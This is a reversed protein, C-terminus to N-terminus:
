LINFSELFRTFNKNLLLPEHIQFLNVDSNSNAELIKIDENNLILDWGIYPLFPVTAHFQEVARLVKDWNPFIIGYLQKRTDPHVDNWIIKGNKPFIVGRSLIGTKIDINCCIGGSSWNDVPMSYFTGFRHLARIVKAQKTNPDFISIVRITNLTHPFIDHSLGRQSFFDYVLYDQSKKLREILDELSIERGNILYSKTKYELTFVSRGGGGKRPKFFVKNKSHLSSLFVELGILSNTKNLFVSSGKILGVSRVADKFFKEFVLKDDLIYSYPNNLTSLKVIRKYDSIFYKLHYSTTKYSFYSDPWFGKFIPVIYHNFSQGRIIQNKLSKKLYNLFSYGYILRNRLIRM